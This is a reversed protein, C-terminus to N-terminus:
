WRDFHNGPTLPHLRTTLYFMSDVKGHQFGCSLETYVYVALDHRDTRQDTELEKEELKVLLYLTLSLYLSSVIDASSKHLFDHFYIRDNETFSFFLKRGKRRTGPRM